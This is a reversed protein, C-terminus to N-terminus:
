NSKFLNSISKFFKKQADNLPQKPILVKINQATYFDEKQVFSSLLYSSTGDNSLM